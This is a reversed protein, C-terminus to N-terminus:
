RYQGICALLIIVAILFATTVWLIRNAIREARVAEQLESMRKEYVALVLPRNVQVDARMARFEDLTVIRPESM